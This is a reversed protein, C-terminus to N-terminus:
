KNCTTNSWTLAKGNPCIGHEDAKLYETNGTTVVWACCCGNKFCGKQLKKFSGLQENGGPVFEINDPGTQFYFIDKGRTNPGANKGNVDYVMLYGWYDDRYVYVSNNHKDTFTYFDSRFNDSGRNTYNILEDSWWCATPNDMGCDHSKQINLNQMFNQLKEKNTAENPSWDTLKGYQNQAYELAQNIENYAQIVKKATINASNSTKSSNVSFTYVLASVILVIIVVIILNQKNM